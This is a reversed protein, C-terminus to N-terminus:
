PKHIELPNTRSILEDAYASHELPSAYGQFPSRECSRDPPHPISRRVSCSFLEDKRNAARRDPTPPLRRGAFFSRAIPGSKLQILHQWVKRIPDSKSLHSLPDYFHRGNRCLSNLFGRKSVAFTSAGVQLTCHNRKGTGTYSDVTIPGADGFELPCTQAGPAEARCQITEDRLILLHEDAPQDFGNQGAFYVNDVYNGKRGPALLLFTGIFVTLLLVVHLVIAARHFPYKNLEPRPPIM